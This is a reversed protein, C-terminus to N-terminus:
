NIQGKENKRYQSPSMGTIHKFTTAFYQSSSYGLMVAIQTISIDSDTLMTRAKNIRQQTLYEAPTLHLEEAFRLYLTTVSLGAEKALTEIKLHEELNANIMECIHKVPKSLKTKKVNPGTNKNLSRLASILLETLTIRVVARSHLSPCQHEDILKKFCSVFEHSAPFTRNLMNKFDSIISRTESLNLGPIAKNQPFRVQLWYLQCPNMIDHLGGHKEGPFTIFINGPNVHYVQDEVWWTVSGRDIYCIEFAKSHTHGPLNEKDHTPKNFIA